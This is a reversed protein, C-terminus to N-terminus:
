QKAPHNAIVSSEWSSFNAPLNFIQEVALQFQSFTSVTCAAGRATIGGGSSSCIAEALHSCRTVEMCCSKWYAVCPLWCIHRCCVTMSEQSSERQISSSQQQTETSTGTIKVVGARVTDDGSAETGTAAPFEKCNRVETGTDV